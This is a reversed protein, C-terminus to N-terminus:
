ELARKAYEENTSVSDPLYVNSIHSHKHYAQYM